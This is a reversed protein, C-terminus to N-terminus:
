RLLIMRKTSKFSGAEVRLFYIGSSLRQGFNNRGDWSLLHYGAKMGKDLITKVLQGAVNYVKLRVQSDQPLALKITTKLNFPNPFNQSLSYVRPVVKEDGAIEVGVPKKYLEFNITTDSSITVGYYTATDYGAHVARLTYNDGELLGSISYFGHVDTTDKKTSGQQPFIFVISGSSDAPPNHNITDNLGVKGSVTFRAREEIDDDSRPM